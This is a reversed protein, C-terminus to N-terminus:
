DQQTFISLLLIYVKVSNNDCLLCYNLYTLERIIKFLETFFLALFSINKFFFELDRTAKYNNLQRNITSEEKSCSEKVKKLLAITLIDKYEKKIVRDQVLNLWCWIYELNKRKVLDRICKCFFKMIFDIKDPNMKLSKIFFILVQNM